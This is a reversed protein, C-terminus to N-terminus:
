DEEGSCTPWNWGFKDCLLGEKTIHTSRSEEEDLSAEHLKTSLLGSSFFIKFKM